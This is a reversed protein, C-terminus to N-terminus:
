AKSLRNKKLTEDSWLAGQVFDKRVMKFRNIIHRGRVVKVYIGEAPCLSTYQSPENAMAIYEEVTPRRHDPSLVTDWKIWPYAFGLHRFWRHTHMPGLWKRENHDFMDHAIFFSPLRDYEMGHQALMWQGYVSYGDLKEFKDMNEYVWNWLPRFQMKATTDNKKRLYGKNLLHDKNRIVPHGDIITVGVSAGDIKEEIIIDVEPDLLIQVDKESAVTDGHGPNPEWPLHQTKPFEPLFDKLQLKM